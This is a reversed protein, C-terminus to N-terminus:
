FNFEKAALHFGNLGDNNEIYIPFNSLKLGDLNGILILYHFLYNSQFIPKDLPYENLEQKNKINIIKKFDIKM